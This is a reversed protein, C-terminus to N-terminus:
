KQPLPHDPCRFIFVGNPQMVGLAINNCAPHQCYDFISVGDGGDSEIDQVMVRNLATLLATAPDIQYEPKEKNPFLNDNKDIHCVVNSIAWALIPDGNYHFRGDFVAAELEKMPDSLYKTLQPVEVMMIGDNQLHEVMQGMGWQDHAVELLEYQNAWERICNEVADISNSNGPNVELLGDAEWGHYQANSINDVRERNSWYKGFVFYHRRTKLEGEVQEDRDEWFVRMAAMMDLKSAIDTGVITKKGDFDEIKLKPDACALFKQMDMWAHDSQLWINLHKTKFGAQQSPSQQATRAKDAIVKPDVCVGWSPNAKIWSSQTTWDDKEDITYIIGFLTDNKFAPVGSLMKVVEQHVEYCVSALDTGATTIIWLMAGQRKGTATDLNDYFDRDGFAHLEDVIVFYPNIGEVTRDDNAIPRYFSNSKEQHLSHKEITVGARPAYQGMNLLMQRAVGWVIKAQKTATAASYVQSGPEGEAFAKFIGVPATGTSKGSGKPVETYARRFRYGGEADVWSFVTMYEFVQWAQLIIKKGAFQRGEVHPCLEAFRCLKAGLESKYTYPFDAAGQRKLDNLQRQCAQKVFKCAPTKGSLVDSIYQQAIAEYDRISPKTPM